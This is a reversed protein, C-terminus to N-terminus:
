DKAEVSFPMGASSVARQGSLTMAIGTCNVQYTGSAQPTFTYVYEKKSENIVQETAAGLATTLNTDQFLYTCSLTTVATGAQVRVTVPEQTRHTTGDIMIPGLEETPLLQPPITATPPVQFDQTEELPPLGMPDQPPIYINPDQTELLPEAPVAGGLNCASLMGAVFVMMGVLWAVQIWPKMKKPM